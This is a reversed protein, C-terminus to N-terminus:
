PTSGKAAERASIASASNGGSATIGPTNSSTRFLRSRKETQAPTVVSGSGLSAAVSSVPTLQQQQMQQLRMYDKDRPPSNQPDSNQGDTYGANGENGSSDNGGRDPLLL